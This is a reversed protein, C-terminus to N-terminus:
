LNFYNYQKRTKYIIHKYLYSFIADISWGNNFMVQSLIKNLFIRNNELVTINEYKLIWDPSPFRRCM